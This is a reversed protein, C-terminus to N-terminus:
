ITRYLKGKSLYIKYNDKEGIYVPNDLMYLDLNGIYQCEMLVVKNLDIDEADKPIRSINIFLILIFFSVATVLIEATTM